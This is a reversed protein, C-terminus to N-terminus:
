SDDEEEKKTCQEFIVTDWYCDERAPCVFELTTYDDEIICVMLWYPREKGTSSVRLFRGDSFDYVRGKKTRAQGYIKVSYAYPPDPCELADYLATSFPEVSGGHMHHFIIPNELLIPELPAEM